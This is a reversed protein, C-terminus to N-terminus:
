LPLSIGSGVLEGCSKSFIKNSRVLDKSSRGLDGRIKAPNPLIEISKLTKKTTKMKVWIRDGGLWFGQFGVSKYTPQPNPFDGSSRIVRNYTPCLGLEFLGISLRVQQFRNQREKENTKMVLKIDKTTQCKVNIILALKLRLNKPDDEIFLAMLRIHGRKSRALNLNKHILYSRRKIFIDKVFNTVTHIRKM